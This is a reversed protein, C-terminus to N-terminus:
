SNNSRNLEEIVRTITRFIALYKVYITYNDLYSNNDFNNEVYDILIAKVRLLCSTLRKITEINNENKAINNISDTTNIITEYLKKYNMKLQLIRIQKQEDTLSNYIEDEAAATDSDESSSQDDGGETDDSTTNGDNTDTTSSADDGGDGSDSTDVTYDEGENNDTNADDGSAQDDATDDGANDDNGTESETDDSTDVTYDDESTTDDAPEADNEEATDDAADNNEETDDATDVTYDDETNNDDEAEQGNVKLEHLVKDNFFWGM